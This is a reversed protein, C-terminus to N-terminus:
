RGKLLSINQTSVCYDIYKREIKWGAKIYDLLSWDIERSIDMELEIMRDVTELIFHLREETLKKDLHWDWIVRKRLNVQYVTLPPIEEEVEYVKPDFLSM